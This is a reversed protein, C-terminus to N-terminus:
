ILMSIRQVLTMEPFEAFYLECAMLFNNCGTPDRNYHEPLSVHYLEGVVQTLCDFQNQHARLRQFLLPEKEATIPAGATDM